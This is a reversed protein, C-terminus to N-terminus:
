IIFDLIEEEHPVTKALKDKYLIITSNKIAQMLEEKKSDFIKNYTKFEMTILHLMLAEKRQM